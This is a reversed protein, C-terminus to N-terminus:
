KGASAIAATLNLGIQQPNAKLAEEYYTLHQGNYICDSGVIDVPVLGSPFAGLKSLVVSTNTTARMDLTNNGPKLTLDPILATGIPTGTISLRLTM